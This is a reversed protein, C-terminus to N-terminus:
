WELESIKTAVSWEALNGSEADTPMDIMHAVYHPLLEAAVGAKFLFRSAYTEQLRFTPKKTPNFLFDAYLTILSTACRRFCSETPNPRSSGFLSSISKMTPVRTFLSSKAPSGDSLSFLFHHTQVRRVVDSHFRRVRPHPSPHQLRTSGPISRSRSSLSRVQAQRSSQEVRVARGFPYICTHVRCLTPDRGLDAHRGAPLDAKSARSSPFPYSLRGRCRRRCPLYLLFPSVDLLESVSSALPM